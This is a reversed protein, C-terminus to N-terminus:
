RPRASAADIRRWERWPELYAERAHAFTLEPLTVIRKSGPDLRQGTMLDVLRAVDDRKSPLKPLRIVRREGRDTSYELSEAGAFRLARPDHALKGAVRWDAIPDGTRADYLRVTRQVLVVALLRGDDSLAASTVATGHHIPPIVRRQTSTEILHVAHNQTICLRLRADPSAYEFAVERSELSDDVQKDDSDSGSVIDSPLSASSRATEGDADRKSARGIRSRSSTEGGDSSSDAAEATESDFNWVRLTQDRSIALVSNGTPHWALHPCIDLSRFAVNSLSGDAVNWVYLRGLAGITALRRGDPSLAIAVNGIPLAVTQRTFGRPKVPVDVFVQPGGCYVAVGRSADRTAWARVARPYTWAQVLDGTDCRRLELENRRAVFFQEGGATLLQGGYEGRHTEAVNRGEAEFVRRKAVTDWVVSGGGLGRAVVTRGDDSIQMESIGAPGVGSALIFEQSASESGSDRRMWYVRDTADGVAITTAGRSVALTAIPQEVRSDSDGGVDAGGDAVRVRIRGQEDGTAIFEGCPSVACATIPAADRWTAVLRGDYPSWLEASGDALVLAVRRFDDTWAARTWASRSIGLGTLKPWREVQMAVRLRHQDDGRTALSDAEWAQMYWFLSANSDRERQATQGVLLYGSVLREISQREASEARERASEAKWREDREAKASLSLRLGDLHFRWAAALSGAVSAVILVVVAVILAALPRNRRSWRWVREATSLPRALIPRDDLFRQLEDALMAASQYRQDPSKSMCKLCITALDRPISKRVGSPLRPEEESVAVLTELLTLREFPPEGTLLEYLIAGLSYIDTALGLTGGSGAAQEPSMYNPSGALAGTQTLRLDADLWLALGFDGIKPVFNSLLDDDCTSHDTSMAVPSEAGATRRQLLVNAPKLDRHVIGRQHAAEVATALQRVVEAATRATLRRTQLWSALSGGECYEMVIFSLSEVSGVDHVRVINSHRVHALTQGELRFRTLLDPTRGPASSMMKIAVRRNLAVQRALWVEGMGGRGLLTEIEYGPIRCSEWSGGSGETGETNETATNKEGSVAAGTGVMAVSPEGHWRRVARSTLDAADLQELRVSCDACTGLHAELGAIEDLSLEGRLMRTLRSADPHQSNTM